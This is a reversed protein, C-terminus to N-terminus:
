FLAEFLAMGLIFSLFGGDKEKISAAEKEVREADEDRGASRLLAAFERLAPAVGDAAPFDMKALTRAIEAAEGCARLANEHDQVNNLALALAVFARAFDRPETPTETEALKRRIEIEEECARVADAGRDLALFNGGLSPLSHALDETYTPDADALKRRLEIAEMYSPVADAARDLRNLVVGHNHLINGLSKTLAPVTEVLKGLIEVAERLAPEADAVRDLSAFSTGLNGGSPEAQPLSPDTETLKRLLATAEECLSLALHRTVGPDTEKLKRYLQVAEESHHLAEPEEYQGQEALEEAQTHLYQALDKAAAPDTDAFKRFEEQARYLLVNPALRHRKPGALRGKAQARDTQNTNANTKTDPM